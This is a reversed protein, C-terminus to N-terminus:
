LLNGNQEPIMFVISELIQNATARSRRVVFAVAFLSMAECLRSLPNDPNKGASTLLSGATFLM